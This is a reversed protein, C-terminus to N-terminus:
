LKTQSTTGKIIIDKCLFNSEPNIKALLPIIIILPLIFVRILTIRNPLNMKHKKVENM